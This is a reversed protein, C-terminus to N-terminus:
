EYKVAQRRDFGSYTRRKAPFTRPRLGRVERRHAIAGSLATHSQKAIACRM